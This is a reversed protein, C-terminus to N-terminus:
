ILVSGNSPGNCSLPPVVNVCASNGPLGATLAPSGAKVGGGKKSWRPGPNKRTLFPRMSIPENSTCDPEVGDGVGVGVALGLGVGAAVAVGVDVGADVGVDLAVAVAVGVAVGVAVAAAVDDGVAVGAGLAVAVAVGVEVGLTVGVGLTPGVGLGRGVGLCRGDVCYDTIPSCHVTRTAPIASGKKFRDKSGSSALTCACSCASAKRAAAENAAAATFAPM